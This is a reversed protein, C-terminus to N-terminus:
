AGGGEKQPGRWQWYDVTGSNEKCNKCPFNHLTRDYYVCSQCRCDGNSLHKVAADREEMLTEIAETADLMRERLWTGHLPAASKLQEILEKYDM